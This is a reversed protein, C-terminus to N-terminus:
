PHQVKVLVDVAHRVLLYTGLSLLTSLGISIVREVNQNKVYPLNKFKVQYFFSQFYLLMVGYSISLLIKLVFSDSRNAVYTIAGLIVVWRLWEFLKPAAVLWFRDQAVIREAETKRAALDIENPENM